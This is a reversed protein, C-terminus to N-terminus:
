DNLTEKQKTNTPMMLFVQKTSSKLIGDLLTIIDNSTLSNVEEEYNTFLDTGYLYKEKLIKFWYDNEKINQLHKKLMFAKAKKLDADEIGNGSIDSLIRYMINQAVLAYEPKVPNKLVLETKAFGDEESHLFLASCGTSYAISAEERIKKHMLYTIIESLANFKLMTKLNYSFVGDNLYQILVYSEPSLMQHSFKLDVNQNSYNAKGKEFSSNTNKQPLVALYKCILYKLTDENFDGTFFFTFNSADSFRSKYNKIVNKFNIKEIDDTKLASIRPNNNFQWYKVTDLFVAEPKIKENQLRHSLKQKFIEFDQKNSGGYVFSCYINTFFFELDKANCSGSISQSENDININISIQKGTKLKKLERTSFGNLGTNEMIKDEYRFNYIESEPNLSTGGFSFGCFMVEDQKFDTKKLIAKAGNSLTLIKASFITDNKENVINGQEPLETLLKKKILVDKYSPTRKKLTEKTIEKYINENMYFQGSKEPSFNFAVLNRGNDTIINQILSNLEEVSVKETLQKTLLYQDSVSILAKNDLFHRLCMKVYDTNKLNQRNKYNQENVFLIEKKIRELESPLFGHKKIRMAETLLSKYCDKERSPKAVGMFALGGASKAFIYNGLKCSVSFFPSRIDDTLDQLRSNIMKSIIECNLLYKFYDLGGQKEEPFQKFKFYVYFSIRSQEKDKSTAFIPEENFPCDYSVIPEENDPNQFKSFKEKIKKETDDVNIDGVIIVGQLSPHYWKKYYERLKDYPCNEVISMLGIPIRKSYKSDKLIIPLLEEYQRMAPSNRAIYESKVVGREKDIEEDLLSINGSWDALIQICSDTLFSNGGVPVNDIWYITEDYSTSANLESGYKIGNEELFTVMRDGQFHKSGNFAMHELLHALGREDEEEQMSGVKQALYFCAQNKPKENHRIYYTLGNDLVGYRFNTDQPLSDKNQSLVAFPLLTLFLFFAFVIKM